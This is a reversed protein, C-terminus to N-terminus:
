VAKVLTSGVTFAVGRGIEAVWIVLQRGNRRERITGRVGALAGEQVVVEEGIAPDPREAVREPSLENRQVVDRLSLVLEGAVLAPRGHEKVVTLVGPTRLVRPLAVTTAKAFLYGPFLPVEVERRRDGWERRERLTPLWSELGM